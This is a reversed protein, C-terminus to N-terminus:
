VKFQIKHFFANRRLVRLSLEASNLMEAASQRAFLIRGIAKALVPAWHLLRNRIWSEANNSNQQFEFAVSEEAGAAIVLHL